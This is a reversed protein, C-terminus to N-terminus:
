RAQWCLSFERPKTKLHKTLTSLINEPINMRTEEQEKKKQATNETCIM